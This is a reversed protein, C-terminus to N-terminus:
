LLALEEELADETDAVPADDKHESPDYFLAMVDAETTEDQAPAASLTLSPADFVDLKVNENGISVNTEFPQDLDGGEFVVRYNGTPLELTYGGSDWTSTTFVNENDDIATIQVDGQGEGIDYFEDGDGDELVVGTLYTEGTDSFLETVFTSGDLGRHDGYDYGLGIESWQNGLLNEQHGDSNWLNAHHAEARAQEDFNTSSSGIWGINEGVFRNEHGADEARDWPLGGDPDTHSFFNRDDMDESHAEAANSLTPVVALAQVSNPSSDESLDDNLRNVEANPDMRARNVLEVILQEEASLGAWGIDYASDPIDPTSPPTSPASPADAAGDNSDEAPAEVPEAVEVPAAVEVPEPVEIPAPVEVPEAVEAPAAVEVPTDDEVPLSIPNLSTSLPPAMPADDDTPTPAAASSGGGDSDSSGGGLVFIGALGGFLMALYAFM